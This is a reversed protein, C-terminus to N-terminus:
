PLLPRRIRERIGADVGLKQWLAPASAVIANGTM